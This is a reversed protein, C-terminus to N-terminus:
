KGICFQEFIHTLIEDTMVEGTIEDLNLLASKIDISILDQLEQIKAGELAHELAIKANTLCEQQRLNTSFENDEIKNHSIIQIEIEKKLEEIGCNTKTSICLINQPLTSVLDSKSGIKIHLKEEVKFLIKEDEKTLGQSLDYMFLVLDAEKLCKKSFDIGISEIVDSDSDNTLERLGATDMLTVPIGAIDLSEQLVDRTTGAINTVIARQSDLLTNFLSSKGVNTQGIIAIKLGQRMLNSSKAGSLAKEIKNIFETLQTEIFGYEPEPVDDPFDIAATIKALLEMIESRLTKIYNSLTGSLNRTSIKSFRDTKSHIVDLVAEAQSLDMKGNLFARKTFEGRQAMVAGYKLTLNLINKVITMGGHCNIEVIDEGTYSNPSKFYTILVEDLITKEDLIWGHLAMNPVFDPILQKDPYKSFIKQLIKLSNDGSIRIIGVGGSGLPTTIATITKNQYTM